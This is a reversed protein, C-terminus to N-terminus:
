WRPLSCLCCGDSIAWILCLRLCLRCDSGTLPLVSGAVQLNLTMGGVRKLQAHALVCSPCAPAALALIILRIRARPVAGHDACGGAGGCCVRAQGDLGVLAASDPEKVPGARAAASAAQTVSLRAAPRRNAPPPLLPGQLPDDLLGDADGVGGWGGVWGCAWVM